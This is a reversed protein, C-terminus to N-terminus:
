RTWWRASALSTPAAEAMRIRAASTSSSWSPFANLRVLRMITEGPRGGNAVHARLAVALAPRLGGHRPQPRLERHADDRRAPRALRLPRTIQQEM